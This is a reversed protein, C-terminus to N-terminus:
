KLSLTAGGDHEQNGEMSNKGVRRQGKRAQIHSSM